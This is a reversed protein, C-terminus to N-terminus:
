PEGRELYRQTFLDDALNADYKVDAITVLTHSGKVVQQMELEQATPVVGINEIKRLALTKQRTDDKDYFDLRRMVSDAQDLWM